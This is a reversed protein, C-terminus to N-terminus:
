SPPSSGPRPPRSCTPSCRRPSRRPSSPGTSAPTPPSGSSRARSSASTTASTPPSSRWSRPRSAASTSPSPRRASSPSAPRSSPRSSTPSSAGSSAPASATRSAPSRSRAGPGVLHRDPRGRQPAPQVHPLVGGPAGPHARPVPHRRHAARRPRPLAAQLEADGQGPHRRRVREHVVRDVRLAGAQQPVRHARPPRHRPAPPDQGARGPRLHVAPQLVPGPERGGLARRRPRLPEVRRHRVPRLHLPREAHGLGLHPRGNDDDAGSRARRRAGPRPRPEDVAVAVPPPALAISERVRPRRDRGAARRPRHGRHLRPHRRHAHGLLELPHARRRALEPM